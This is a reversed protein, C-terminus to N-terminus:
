GVARFQQEPKYSTCDCYLVDGPELNWRLTM